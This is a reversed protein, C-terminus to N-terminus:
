RLAVGSDRCSLVVAAAGWFACAPRPSRRSGVRLGVRDPWVQAAGGVLLFAM